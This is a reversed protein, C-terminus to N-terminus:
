KVLVVQDNYFKNIDKVFNNWDAWQVTAKSFTSCFSSRGNAGANIAIEGINVKIGNSRAWIVLDSCADRLVTKNASNLGPRLFM